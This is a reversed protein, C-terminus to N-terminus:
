IEPCPYKNHYYIIKLRLDINSSDPHKWNWHFITAGNVEYIYLFDRTKYRWVSGAEKFSNKYGHIHEDIDIYSQSFSKEPLKYHVWKPSSM